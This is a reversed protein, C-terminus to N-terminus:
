KKLEYEMVEEIQSSTLRKSIIKKDRDLIYICPLRTFQFLDEYHGFGNVTCANIFGEGTLGLQEIKRFCENCGIYERNCVTLIKLGNKKYKEMAKKLVASEIDLKETNSQYFYLVLYSAEQKSLTTTQNDKYTINFDPATKGILSRDLKKANECIAKLQEKAIWDAKGNCYYNNALHVYCADFGIIDSKAYKNLYTILIYKFNEKASSTKKLIFDLSANISDPHPITLKNIFFDVKEDLINTYSFCSETLDINDFYHAKYWYFRANEIEQKTGSFEPIQIDMSGKVLKPCLTKPNKEILNKQYLAVDKDSIKKQTEVVQIVIKGEKHKKELTDLLARQKTIYRMYDFLLNNELSGEVTANESLNALNTKISFRQDDAPVIINIFDNQPLTVLMYMGCHLATDGSFVFSGNANKKVTQKVYMKKGYHYALILEDHKYDAITATINYAKQANLSQISALCLLLLLFSTKM